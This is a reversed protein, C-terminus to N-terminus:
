AVKRARVIASPPHIASYLTYATYHIPQIAICATYRQIASYLRCARPVTLTRQIAGYRATICTICRKGICRAICGCRTSYLLGRVDCTSAQGRSPRGGPCRRQGAATSCRASSVCYAAANSSWPHSKTVCRSLILSSCSATRILSTCIFLPWASRRRSRWARLRGGGGM